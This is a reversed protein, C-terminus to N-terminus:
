TACTSGARPGSLRTSRRPLEDLPGEHLLDRGWFIGPDALLPWLPRGDMPLGARTRAGRRDHARSRHQGGAPAAAARGPHRPRAHRAAGADLARVGEAQRDPDPAGRHMFGNDSTFVIVTRSLEGEKKLAAVIRGVGEDVALLSELRLQYRETIATM